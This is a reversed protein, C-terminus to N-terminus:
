QYVGLASRENYIRFRAGDHLSRSLHSRPHDHATCLTAAGGLSEDAVHMYANVPLRRDLIHQHDGSALGVYGRLRQQRTDPFILSTITVLNTHRVHLCSTCAEAPTLPMYPTSLLSLHSYRLRRSLLLIRIAAHYVRLRTTSPDM